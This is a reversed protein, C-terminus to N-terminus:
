DDSPPTWVTQIPEPSRTIKGHQEWLVDKSITYFIFESDTRDDDDIECRIEGNADHVVKAVEQFVHVVFDSLDRGQFEFELADEDLTVLM